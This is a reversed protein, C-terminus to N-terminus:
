FESTKYNIRLLFFWKLSNGSSALTSNPVLLSDYRFYKV